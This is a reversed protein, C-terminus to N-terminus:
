RLPALAPRLRNALEEAMAASDLHVRPRGYRGQQVHLPRTQRTVHTNAVFGTNPSHDLAKCNGNAGFYGILGDAAQRRILTSTTFPTEM